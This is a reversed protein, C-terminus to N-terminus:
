PPRRDGINISDLRKSRNSSAAGFGNTEIPLSPEPAHGRHSTLHANTHIVRVACCTPLPSQWQIALALRGAHDFQKKTTHITVLHILQSRLSARLIMGM